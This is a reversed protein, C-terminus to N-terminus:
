SLDHKVRRPDFEPDPEFENPQLFVANGDKFTAIPYGLLKHEWLARQVGMYAARLLEEPHEAVEQPTMPWPRSM